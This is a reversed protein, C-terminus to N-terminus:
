KETQRSIVASLNRAIEQYTRKDEREATITEQLAAITEELSKIQRDKSRLAEDILCNVVGPTNNATLVTDNEEQQQQRRQGIRNFINAMKDAGRQSWIRVNGKVKSSVTGQQKAEQLARGTLDLYDVGYVFEDSHNRFTNYIKTVGCGLMAALETTLYARDDM